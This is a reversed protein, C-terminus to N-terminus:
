ARYAAPIAQPDGPPLIDAFTKSDPFVRALKVASDLDGFLDEPTAVQVAATMTELPPAVAIPASAIGTLLLPRPFRCM